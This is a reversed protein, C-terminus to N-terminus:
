KNFSQCQPCHTVKKENDELYAFHCYECTILGKDITVVKQRRTAYHHWVWIGLITLLTTMLYCMIATTPSVTIMM